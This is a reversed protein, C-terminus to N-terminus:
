ETQSENQYDIYLIGIAIEDESIEKNINGTRKIQKQEFIRKTQQVNSLNLLICGWLLIQQSALHHWLFHVQLAISITIM